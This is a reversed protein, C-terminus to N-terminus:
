QRRDGNVCFLHDVVWGSAEGFVRVAETEATEVRRRGETGVRALTTPLQQMSLGQRLRGIPGHPAAAHTRRLRELETQLKRVEGDQLRREEEHQQAAQAMRQRAETLRKQAEDYLGAMETVQAALEALRSLAAGEEAVSGAQTLLQSSEEAALLRAELAQRRAESAALKGESAALEGELAACKADAAACQTELREILEVDPEELPKGHVLPLLARPLHNMLAQSPGSAKLQRRGYPLMSSLHTLQEELAYVEDHLVSLM